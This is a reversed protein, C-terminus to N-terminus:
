AVVATELAVCRRAGRHRATAPRFSTERSGRGPFPEPGDSGSTRRGQEAPKMTQGPQLHEQGLPWLYSVAAIAASNGIPTGLLLGHVTEMIPTFPQYEAFWHLATPISDTPVSGSGLFPLLILPM